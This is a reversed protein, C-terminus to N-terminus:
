GETRTGPSRLIEEEEENPERFQISCVDRTSEVGGAVKDLVQTANRM